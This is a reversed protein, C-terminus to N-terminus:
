EERLARGLSEVIPTLVYDLPTRAGTVIMVEAPMGAVLELDSLAPQDPDLAIRAEYWAQGTRPDDFRDASVRVVEGDLRPAGLQSFATLRVQAPLGVAVSDIDTTAVRSEIVLWDETPVIEMLPEGQDIVGGRTYVRLGMVTGGVPATIRTRAVVDRAAEVRERLDSLRTEVDRLEATVETLRTNGLEVILLEREGIAEEIGGIQAQNRARMGATGTRQRELDLLRQHKSELGLLVTRRVEFLGEDLLALQRDLSEIEGALGSRQERLQEIQRQHIATQNALSVARTRFIREQTALVEATAVDVVAAASLTAPWRIAPLGDREAELRANRAAESRYQGELLDLTARPQTDDLLILPQGAAVVDGETVLIDAVIGGELHQVTKREGSVGLVGAAIVASDLRALLTWLGFGGVFLAVVVLGATMSSGVAMGPSDAAPPRPAIPAPVSPVPGARRTTIAADKM